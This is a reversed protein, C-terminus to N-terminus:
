KNLRRMRASVTIEMRPRASYALIVDANVVQGDDVFIVGRMADVIIKAFNDFDPKSEPRVYGLEALLQKYPPWSALMPRYIELVIIVEGAFPIHGSPLQRALRDRLSAQEDGDEAHMRIGVVAGTAKNRIRSARPRKSVPPDGLVTFQLVQPANNEENDAVFAVARKYDAPTLLLGAKAATEAVHGAGEASGFLKQGLEGVYDIEVKTGKKTAM